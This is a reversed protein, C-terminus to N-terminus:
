LIALNKFNSRVQNVENGTTRDESQKRRGLGIEQIMDRIEQFWEAAVQLSDDQMLVAVGLVASSVEFVNSRKSKDGATCWDVSAGKLDICHEPKSSGSQQMTSAFSKQDKFFLLFTDTLVAHCQSWNKRHRKGNELLKTKHMPGQKIVVISVDGIQFNPTSLPLTFKRELMETKTLTRSKTEENSVEKAHEAIRKTSGTLPRKVSRTRPAEDQISQSM